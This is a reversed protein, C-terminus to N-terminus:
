IKNDNSYWAAEAPTHVATFLTSFRTGRFLVSECMNHDNENILTMNTCCAESSLVADYPLRAHRTARRGDSLRAERMQRAALGLDL